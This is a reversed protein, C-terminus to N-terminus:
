IRSKKKALHTQPYAREYGGSLLIKTKGDPEIMRVDGWNRFLKQSKKGDVKFRQFVSVQEFIVKEM